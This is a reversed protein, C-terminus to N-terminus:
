LEGREKLLIARLTYLNMWLKMAEYVGERKFWKDAIELAKDLKSVDVEKAPKERLERVVELIFQAEEPSLPNARAARVATIREVGRLLYDREEATFLGKLAMFDVLHAHVAHVVEVMRSELREFRDEHSSLRREVEGLRKEVEGLGREVEELRKEAEELRKEVGELRREVRELRRGLWYGLTAASTAIAAITSAFGVLLEVEM